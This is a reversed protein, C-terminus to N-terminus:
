NQIGRKQCYDIFMCTYPKNCHDGMAIEPEGDVLVNKFLNIKKDTEISNPELENKLNSVTWAQGEDDSRLIVNFTSLQDGFRKKAILYQVSLDNQIAENLSSNLKIEFIDVQGNDNKVLIDCMILVDDEIITAEYVVQRGSKQLLYQTYSNFFGFNGAVDKENVGGPFGNDRVMDEFSHGKDFLELTEKSFPTKEQKKYKDLYLYKVCQEGKVFASKSLAWSNYMLISKGDPMQQTLSEIKLSLENTAKEKYTSGGSYMRLRTLEKSYYTVACNFDGIEQALEALKIDNSKYQNM